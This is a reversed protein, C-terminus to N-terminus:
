RRGARHWTVPRPWGVSTYTSRNDIVNQLHRDAGALISAVTAAVVRPGTSLPLIRYRFLCLKPERESEAAIILDQTINRLKELPLLDVVAGGLASPLLMNSGHVGVIVRSRAYADLWERERADTMETTRLDLVGSPLAGTTGLGVATFRVSPRLRRLEEVMRAVCRLQHKTALRRSTGPSLRRALRIVLPAREGLWLRDERLVITVVPETQDDSRSWFDRPTFGAGLLQALDDESLPPQSVAPAIVLERYSGVAEHVAEDLGAIWEEAARFPIDVQITSAAAPVLWALQKPVIVLVDATPDSRAFSLGSALKLFCHGYLFDVCDIVVVRDSSRGQARTTLRAAAPSTRTALCRQLRRPYWESGDFYLSGDDADILTPHLLAHGAPWDLWYERGCGECRCEVFIPMGAFRIRGLALRGRCSPCAVVLDKKGVVAPGNTWALGEDTTEEFRDSM